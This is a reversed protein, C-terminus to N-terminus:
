CMSEKKHDKSGEVAEYVRIKCSFQKSTYDFITSSYISIFKGDTYAPKLFQLYPSGRAGWSPHRINNCGGSPTRYKSPPCPSEWTDECATATQNTAKEQWAKISYAYQEAEIAVRARAQLDDDIGYIYESIDFQRVRSPPIVDHTLIVPIVHLLAAYIRGSESLREPYKM